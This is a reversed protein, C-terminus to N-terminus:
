GGLGLCASVHEGDRQPVNLITELRSRLEPSPAALPSSDAKTSEPHAPTTVAQSPHAYILAKEADQYIFPALHDQPV